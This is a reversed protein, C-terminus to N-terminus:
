NGDIVKGNESCLRWKIIKNMEYHLEFVYNKYSLKQSGDPIGNEFKEESSLLSYIGNDNKIEAITGSKTYTEWRVLTTGPLYFRRQSVEGDSFFNTYIFTEGNKYEASDRLHGNTYFRRFNGEKVGSRYTALTEPKGNEYYEKREGSLKEDKIFYGEKLINNVYIEYYGDPVDYRIVYQFNYRAGMDELYKIRLFSTDKAHTFSYQEQMHSRDYNLFIKLQGHANSRCLLLFAIVFQPRSM